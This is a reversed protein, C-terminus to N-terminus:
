FKLTINLGLVNFDCQRNTKDTLHIHFKTGTVVLAPITAMQLSMEPDETYSFHFLFQIIEAMFQTPFFIIDKVDIKLM